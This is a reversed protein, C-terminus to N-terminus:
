KLELIGDIMTQRNKVFFRFLAVDDEILSIGADEGDFHHGEAVENAVLDKRAIRVMIERLTKNIKSKEGENNWQKFAHRLPPTQRFELIIKQVLIEDSIEIGGRIDERVSSSETSVKDIEMGKERTSLDM